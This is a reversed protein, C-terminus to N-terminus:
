PIKEGAALAALHVLFAVVQESGLVLRIEEQQHARETERFIAAEIGTAAPAQADMRLSRPLRTLKERLEEFDFVLVAAAVVRLLVVPPITRVVDPAAHEHPKGVLERPPQVFARQTAM